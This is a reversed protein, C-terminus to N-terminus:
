LYGNKYSVELPKVRERFIEQKEKTLKIAAVEKWMKDDSGVKLMDKGDMLKLKHVMIGFQIGFKSYKKWDEKLVEYPLLAEPDSGLSKVTNSFTTYYIKLYKDLNKIDEIRASTYLMCSLDYVPSSDTIMQFDILKISELKKDKYKFMMNNSWCDGHNLVTYKGKYEMSKWFMKNTESIYHHCNTRIDEDVFEFAAIIASQMVGSIGTKDEMSLFFHPVKEMIKSYEEPHQEKFSISLGHLKGYTMFVYILQEENFVLSTDMMQYGLIKLNELILVENGFIKSCAYMRPIFEFQETVNKRDLFTKLAPFVTDYFYIENHYATTLNTEMRRGENKLAKKVALHLVDKSIPNRISVLFFDSLFGNVEANNSDNLIEFDEWEVKKAVEFFLNTLNKDM